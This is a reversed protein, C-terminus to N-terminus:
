PRDSKCVTSVVDQLSLGDAAIKSCEDIWNPIRSIDAPGDHTLADRILAMLPAGWLPSIHDNVLQPFLPCHEQLEVNLVRVDRTDQLYASANRGHQPQVIEDTATYITTTPVYASAGGAKRFTEILNSTYKQQVISPACALAGLKPCLLETQVTGHYDPSIAIYDSVRSQTSPWYTFAWQTLLNGQSLAVVSVKKGTV